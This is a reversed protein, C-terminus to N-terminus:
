NELSWPVLAENDGKYGRRGRRAYHGDHGCIALIALELYQLALESCEWRQLGDVKEITRRKKETSHVLGNRIKTIVGPGDFADNDRVSDLQRLHDPIITSVRIHHLLARIKGAATIKDFDRHSHLPEAEVLLVWSLLELSAQALIIRSENAIGRSNAEVYWSVSLRLPENWKPDHWKQVFGRFAASLDLRTRSPLWTSAPRSERLTWPAFQRWVFEGEADLGQPFLPGAWTGCLLGFWLHLMNLTSEAEQASLFGAAPAWLGVHTIVFGAGLRASKALEKAEPIKDLQCSGSDTSTELRETTGMAASGKLEYRVPEGCYDPFNALCFRLAEFPGQEVSFEGM